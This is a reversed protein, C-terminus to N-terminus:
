RIARYHTTNNREEIIELNFGADSVLKKVEEAEETTLVTNHVELYIVRLADFQLTERMGPLVEKEGGEVDIKIVNPTGYVEAADDVTTLPVTFGDENELLSSTGHGPVDERDGSLTAQGPEHGVARQEILIEFSNEQKNDWLRSCNIPHPEFAVVEAGNAAAALSYMGVNAGIDFVQDQPQVDNVFKAATSEEHQLFLELHGYEPLSSIVVDVDKGGINVTVADDFIEFRAYKMPYNVLKKLVEPANM